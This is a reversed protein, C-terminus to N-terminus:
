RLNKLEYTRTQCALVSDRWPKLNIAQRIYLIKGEKSISFYVVPIDSLKGRSALPLSPLDLLNIQEIAIANM